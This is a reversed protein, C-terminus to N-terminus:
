LTSSTHAAECRHFGGAVCARCPCGTNQAIRGSPWLLEGVKGPESEWVLKIMMKDGHERVNLMDNHPV